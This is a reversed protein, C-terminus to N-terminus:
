FNLNDMDVKEGTAQLRVISKVHLHLKRKIKNQKSNPYDKLRFGTPARFVVDTLAGCVL